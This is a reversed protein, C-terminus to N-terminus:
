GPGVRVGTAHLSAALPQTHVAHPPLSAPLNGAPIAKLVPLLSHQPLQRHVQVCGDVNNNGGVVEQQKWSAHAKSGPSHQLM